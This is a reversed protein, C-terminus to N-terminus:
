REGASRPFRVLGEQMTSAVLVGERTFFRGQALGRGGSAAPSWCEYLLWEDARFPEHFWMAHDLSAMQVQTTALDHRAVVSGLLTLDSLYTLLCVHRVPDDPLVGDAKMWARVPEETALRDRTWVPEDLLRVDLSRPMQALWGGGGTLVQSGLDPLDEPAPVGAPLPVTHVPGSQAVQFSASLAFIAQGHQIAMVRRTTFSSGDRVREVQYVIPRTPDGGRLFYAHLSHVSRDRAVTRAAAVLAQAAVQGGFVRVPSADPSTGRFLDVELQELVLLDM